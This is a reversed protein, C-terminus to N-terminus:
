SADTTKALQEHNSGHDATTRTVRWEIWLSLALGQHVAMLLPHQWVDTVLSHALLTLSAVSCAQVTVFYNRIGALAGALMLVLNGAAAPVGFRWAWNLHGSYGAAFRKSAGEPTRAVIEEQAKKSPVGGLWYTRLDAVIQSATDVREFQGLLTGDSEARKAGAMPTPHLFEALRSRMPRYAIAIVMLLCVIGIISFRQTRKWRGVCAVVSLVVVLALWAGRSCTLLALGLCILSGSIAGFCFIRANELGLAAVCLGSASAALGAALHNSSLFPGGSWRRLRPPGDWMWYQSIAFLGVIIASAALTILLGALLRQRGVRTSVVACAASPGLLGCNLTILETANFGNGALRTAPIAWILWWVIQRRSVEPRVAMGVLILITFCCCLTVQFLFDRWILGATYPWNLM